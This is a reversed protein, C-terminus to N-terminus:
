KKKGAKAKAAQHMKMLGAAQLKTGGLLCNILELDTVCKMLERERATADSSRMLLELAQWDLPLSVSPAPPCTSM